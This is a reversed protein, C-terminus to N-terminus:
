FRRSRMIRGVEGASPIIIFSGPELYFPFARPNADAIRWWSESSNYYRWALFEMTEGAVVLHRFATPDRPAAGVLRIAITPRVVGEADEAEFAPLTSYRSNLQLPM